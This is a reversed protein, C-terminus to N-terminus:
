REEIEAAIRETASRMLAVSSRQISQRGVLDSILGALELIAIGVLVDRKDAWLGSLPVRDVRPGVPTLGGGPTWSWGGGGYIVGGILISFIADWRNPIKTPTLTVIIRNLDPMVGIRDQSPTKSQTNLTTDSLLARLTLTIMVGGLQKLAWSQLLVAAGAVIATAGSTGGFNLTYTKQPSAENPDFPIDGGCTAIHQGWAYCDVRSGFNSFDLREHPVDSSAAGVMIAGSDKFDPSARNLVFKGDSNVFADLNSGKGAVTGDEKAILNNGAPELVTIGISTAMKILDFMLPQVEVPVWGLQPDPPATTEILLVDGSQMQEIAAAIAEATNFHSGFWQSM